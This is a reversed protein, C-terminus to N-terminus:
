RILDLLAFMANLEAALCRGHLCYKNLLYQGSPSINENIIATEQEKELNQSEM